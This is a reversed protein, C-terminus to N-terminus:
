GGHSMPPDDFVKGWNVSTPTPYGLSAASFVTKCVGSRGKDVGMVLHLQSRRHVNAQQPLGPFAMFLYISATISTIM